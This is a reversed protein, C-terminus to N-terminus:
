GGTSVKKRTYKYNFLRAIYEVAEHSQEENLSDTIESILKKRKAPPLLDGGAETFRILYQTNYKPHLAKWKKQQLAPALSNWKEGTAPALTFRYKTSCVTMEGINLDTAFKIDAPSFSAAVPHNHIFAPADQMIACEEANYHISKVGGSKRFIVNGADDLAASHETRRRSFLTMIDSITQNIGTKLNKPPKYKLPNKYGGKPTISIWDCRGSPHVPIMGHAEEILYVNGDLDACIPCAGHAAYFRVKQVGVTKYGQLSGQAQAIGTETRAIMLRRKRLLRKHYAAAKKNAIDASVGAAQMKVNRNVVAAAWRYPLDTVVTLNRAITPMSQGNVIGIKIVEKTARRTEETIATILEGGFKDIQAVAEPKVVDFSAKIGALRYGADAGDIFASTYAPKLIAAGETKIRELDVAGIIRATAVQAAKEPSKFIKEKGSKRFLGKRIGRRLEPMLITEEFEKYARYFKPINKNQIRDYIRKVFSRIPASKYITDVLQAASGRELLHAEKVILHLRHLRKSLDTTECSNM